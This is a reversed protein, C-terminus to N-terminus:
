RIIVASEIINSKNLAKDILQITYKITDSEMSLPNYYLHSLNVEMKGKIGKAKGNTLIPEIRYPFIVTDGALNLGNEWGVLDNKEFYHIYLNYQFFSSTDYPTLTDNDNLGLDGDGDTFNFTLELSDGIFKYSDYTIVPEIPYEEKKFCSSLLGILITFSFIFHIKTRMKM